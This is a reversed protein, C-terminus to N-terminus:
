KPGWIWGASIGWTWESSDPDPDNPTPDVMGFQGATFRDPYWRLNFSANFNKYTVGLPRFKLGINDFTSFQKGFVVDYSLGILGHHFTLNGYNAVGKSDKNTFSRMEVMPEIAVMFSDFDHFDFEEPEEGSNKGTSVYGITDFTLWTRRLKRSEAEGIVRYDFIRCEHATKAANKHEWDYECHFVIGIMQPGSMSWIYDWISAHSVCPFGLVALLAIGTIGAYKRRM